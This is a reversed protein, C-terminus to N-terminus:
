EKPSEDAPRAAPQYLGTSLLAKTIAPVGGYRHRVYPKRSLRKLDDNTLDRAPFGSLGSGDGVYRLAM